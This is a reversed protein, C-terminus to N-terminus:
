NDCRDGERGGVGIGALLVEITLVRICGYRRHKPRGYKRHKPRQSRLKTIPSNQSMKLSEQLRMLRDRIPIIVAIERPVLIQISLKM